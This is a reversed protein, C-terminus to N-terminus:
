IQLYNCKLLFFGCFISFFGHTGFTSHTEDLVVGFIPRYTGTGAMPATYAPVPVTESFTGVTYRHPVRAMIDCMAMYLIVCHYAAVREIHTNPEKWNAADGQCVEPSLLLINGRMNRCKAASKPKM